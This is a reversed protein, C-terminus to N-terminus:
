GTLEEKSDYIKFIASSGAIDFVEKIFDRLSCFSLKM